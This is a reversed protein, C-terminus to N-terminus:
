IRTKQITKELEEQDEKIKQANELNRVLYAMVGQENLKQLLRTNEALMAMLATNDQGANNSEFATNSSNQPPYLGQEFGPVGVGALQRDLARKFEPSFNSYDTGNIIFEPIYGEGAIFQTPEKVIGSRSRGGNRVNFRKGDQERIVPYLGQEFGPVTPLDTSLVMGLQVAGLAAVAASAITATAPEPFHAWIGMIARATDTIIGAVASERQRKAQNYEAKAQRVELEKQLAKTSADYQRQSILGAELRNRLSDQQQQNSNRYNQLRIQENENVFSNYTGWANSLASVVAITAELEGRTTGLNNYLQSWQDVSMGLIDVNGGSAFASTFSDGTDKGSAAQKAAAVEELKLKLEDLMGLVVAQQEPTLLDLNFGGFNGSSIIDEMQRIMENLHTAQLDLEEQYLSEQLQKKEEDTGTFTQLKIANNRRLVELEKVFAEQQTTIDETIAQQTIAKVKNQYVQEELLLQNNILDKEEKTLNAEETLNDKLAQIKTQHATELVALERLIDDQILQNKLNLADAKIQLLLNEKDQASKTEDDPTVTPTPTYTNSITWKGNKFVFLQGDITKIEGEKPADGATNPNILNNADEPTFNLELLKEELDIQRLTQEAIDSNVSKLRSLASDMQKYGDLSEIMRQKEIASLNLTNEIAEVDAKNNDEFIKKRTEFLNQADRQELSLEKKREQVGVLRSAMTAAEEDAALRKLKIQERVAETNLIFAGTESNISMVSEGLRDKLQLTIKDLEEKQEITPELGDQTLNEYQKLLAESENALQRSSTANEFSLKSTEAFADNVNDIAGVLKAFGVVIANLGGTIAKNAFLGNFWRQLKQLTAALNNNKINYENTLSTAEKLSNNAIDQKNELNEVNAALASIAQAGRTGGLEIGDLRVAMQELTPNGEKLGKLFLILAQNADEELLTSYEKISVGAVKAFSAVDEAASGFFKNIATASIEQTQGAEDFAAALGVMDQAAINAVDSIGATRKIFDVLFSAQNSGSASVENISSGLALMAQEFNKGEREGVKYIKVMKGVERIQEDGLDDGLAVKLQNAVEVFSTINKSGEIGLRGAEEALKLLELRSTRTNFTGFTSLLGIVEKNTLGTTKQVNSQADSLKGSFDIFKQISFVVGTITAIVSAGLAAYKNFGNALNSIGSSAGRSNIKLEQMRSNVVKLEKQLRIFESSGPVMDTLQMRLVTASRALQRMTLGTVGIQKGLAGMEKRNEAIKASQINIQDTLRKYEAGGRKGDRFLQAREAKLLKNSTTLDKTAKELDFLKKQAQNDNIILNLHIDEDSVTRGM